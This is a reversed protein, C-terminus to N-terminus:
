MSQKLRWAIFPGERGAEEYRSKLQQKRAALEPTEWTLFKEATYYGGMSENPASPEFLPLVAAREIILTPRMESIQDLIRNGSWVYLDPNLVLCTCFNPISPHGFDAWFGGPMEGWSAISDRPVAVRKALILAQDPEPPFAALRNLEFSAFLFLFASGAVTALTALRRFFLPDRIRNLAPQVHVDFEAAAVVVMFGFSTLWPIYYHQWSYGSVCALPLEIAVWVAAILALAPNRLKRRIALFALYLAAAATLWGLPSQGVWRFGDTLAVLRNADKWAYRIGGFVFANLADKLIGAFYLPVYICLAAALGGIATEGFRILRERITRRHDFAIYLLWVVGMGAHNQRTHFLLIGCIGQLAAVYRPSRNQLDSILLWLAVAQLPQALVESLNPTAPLDWFARFVALASLLAWISPSVRWYARVLMFWFVASILAFLAFVGAPSGPTLWMGLANLFYLIPPKQDWVGRYMPVGRAVQQGIYMYFGSDDQKFLDFGHVVWRLYYVTVAAAFLARGAILAKRFPAGSPMSKSPESTVIQDVTNAPM